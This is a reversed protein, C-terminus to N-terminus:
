KGNELQNHQLVSGAAFYNAPSSSSPDGTRTPGMTLSSFLLPVLSPPPTIRTSITNMSRGEMDYKILSLFPSGLESLRREKLVKEGAGFNAERQKADGVQV